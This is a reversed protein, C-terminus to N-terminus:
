FFTKGSFAWSGDGEVETEGTSLGMTWLRPHRRPTDAYLAAAHNQTCQGVSQSFEQKSAASVLSLLERSADPFFAEPTVRYLTKVADQLEHLSSSKTDGSGNLLVCVHVGLSAQCVSRNKERVGGDKQDQVWKTANWQHPTMLSPVHGNKTYTHSHACCM